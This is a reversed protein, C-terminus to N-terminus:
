SEINTNKLRKLWNKIIKPLEPIRKESINKKRRAIKLQEDFKL